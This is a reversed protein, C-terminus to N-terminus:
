NAPYTGKVLELLDELLWLSTRIENVADDDDSGSSGTTTVLNNITGNIGKEAEQWHLLKTVGSPVVLMMLM